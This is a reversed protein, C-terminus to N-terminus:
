PPCEAVHLFKLCEDTTLTRTLRSKALAIIDSLPVAFVRLNGGPMSVALRRGDPSFSVSKASGGQPSYFTLPQENQAGASSIKWVKATSDSSATAVMSGDPSFAVEYAAGSHGSLTFLEKGTLADWVRGTGDDGATAIRKGDRSYTVSWILGTHGSMTFLEKRTQGGISLPTSLDWIRAIKDGGATVLRLGDPSFAAGRTSPTHCCLTLLVEGTRSDWVKATEGEAGSAIMRGDPSFALRPGFTGHFSPNNLSSLRQGTTTDYVNIKDDDGTTALRKGDPSYTLARLPGPHDSITLIENGTQSNFFRTKGDSGGAAILTGDPSYALAMIFGGAIPYGVTLWERGGSPTIDWVKAVGDSSSTALRTGDPNFVARTVSGSHGALTQLLEGTTADWLKAKGDNDGTAMRTGDSSFAISCGNGYLFVTLLPQGSRSDWIRATKDSSTSAIRKGDPSFVAETIDLTHGKLILQVQGTNADWVRVTHELEDTWCGTVLRMGDPSYAISSVGGTHGKLTLLERGTAADWVKATGDLSATALRTGDPSYAIRRISNVHGVLTLLEQGTAADWVKATKDHGATALRKGDPSYAIAWLGQTHSRLTLLEQGMAADWVKATNDAAATALRKGDPSYALNWVSASHGRLTLLVRSALVARHLAEEAEHLVPKGDATSVAVANLALLMSREPDIGLNDVANVSLERAYAIRRESEARTANQSSQQGFAAAAVAFVGAVLLAGALFFARLRLSRNARAQEEARSKEADARHAEAEAQNKQAEARQREAEAIRQATELERQRQAEREAEEHEQQVRSAELFEHELPNLESAGIKVWESTQALRLGRYLEGRDRNMKEWEQAAATLQRRLRLAERDQNLWERLQPWERILAEHAVEATNEGLTVLRAEALTNLVEHIKVADARGQVLEDLTVRRRTDQTGEGLETLQLFIHRAIQQGEPPLQHFVTGATQAIAGHVGGCSAYGEFTLTRGRRREWTELLAHSLLPLGGPESGVDRLILEGLGPELEWGERQAPGEIAQRMEETTMPGIYEQRQSLAERLNPYQACHAYFDARLAVIVYIPRDLECATATLLNDIFPKREAEDRCLTFLEEFQDIVLLLRENEPVMRHAYVRLTRQDRALDDNLSMTALLTPASRTLSVALAELPHLTPTLVQISWHSKPPSLLPSGARLAPILGARVLSSKGCGSAGVVTLWHYEAMHGALSAVLRERGFFRPSDAEDFHRLGKYPADKSESKIEAAVVFTPLKSPPASLLAAPPWDQGHSLREFLARTQESPEVALDKKLAAVCREFVVAVQSRNGLADQAVMLARFAPEPSYSLAIWREAWTLMEAWRQGSRLLDLLNGVQREFITHLREREATVWEDYFDPLLQNEYAGLAQALDDISLGSCLAQEFRAVDLTFTAHPDIGVTLDDSLLLDSHDPLAGDFTKRLRWLEQRLSRRANKEITDPWFLGALKERRHLTARNILLYALLSQALRSPISIPKGNLRVEFQGFLRFELM